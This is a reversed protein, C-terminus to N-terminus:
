DSTASNRREASPNLTRAVARMLEEPDGPNIYTDVEALRPEGARTLAIVLAAPNKARFCAILDQKDKKPISHGVIFLEFDGQECTEIGERFGLASIVSHGAGHLMLERTRLLMEDYSISLIRSM